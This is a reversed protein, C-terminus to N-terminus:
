GAEQMLSTFGAKWYAPGSRGCCMRARREVVVSDIGRGRPLWSLLLGSPGRLRHCGTDACVSVRKTAEGNAMGARRVSDGVVIEFFRTM